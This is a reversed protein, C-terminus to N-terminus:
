ASCTNRSYVQSDTLSAILVIVLKM